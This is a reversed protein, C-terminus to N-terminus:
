LRRQGAVLLAQGQGDLLSLVLIGLEMLLDSCVLFLNMPLDLRESLLTDFPHIAKDSPHLRLHDILEVLVPMFIDLAVQGKKKRVAQTRRDLSAQVGM